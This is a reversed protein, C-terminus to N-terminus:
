GFKKADGSTVIEPEAKKIVVDEDVIIEEIDDRGPIEFMINQLSDELISRLGRAGTEREIALDAIAELSEPTFTLEVGDIDFMKQYQKVLANKPENLIRLLDEKGLEDVATIIPLRGIFESILGFNSLDESLIDSSTNFEDM